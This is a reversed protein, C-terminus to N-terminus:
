GLQDLENTGSIKQRRDVATQSMLEVNSWSRLLILNIISFDFRPMATLLSVIWSGPDPSFFFFVFLSLESLSLRDCFGVCGCQCRWELSLFAWLEKDAKVIKISSILKVGVCFECLWKNIYLTCILITQNQLLVTSIVLFSCDLCGPRYKM